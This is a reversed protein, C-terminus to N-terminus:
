MKDVMVEKVVSRVIKDKLQRNEEEGLGGLAVNCLNMYELNDLTDFVQYEPHEDQWQPIIKCNMNAVKNIITDMKKKSNAQKEWEDNDKIYLTERKVDTCHM